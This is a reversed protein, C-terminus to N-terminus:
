KRLPTIRPVKVAYLWKDGLRQVARVWAARNHNDVSTIGCNWLEKARKHLTEENM